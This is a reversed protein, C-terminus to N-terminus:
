HQARTHLLCAVTSRFGASCVRTNPCRCTSCPMLCTSASPCRSCAHLCQVSCQTSCPLGGWFEVQIQLFDSLPGRVGGRKTLLPFRSLCSNQSSDCTVNRPDVESARAAAVFFCPCLMGGVNPMWADGIADFLSAFIFFYKHQVHRQKNINTHQAKHLRPTSNALAARTSYGRPVYPFRARLGCFM